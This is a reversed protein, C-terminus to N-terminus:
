LDFGGADASLFGIREYSVHNQEWDLSQDEHVRVFTQDGDNRTSYRVTATEENRMTQMEALLVDQADDLGTDRWKFSAGKTGTTFVDSEPDSQIAIWDIEERVHRGNSAEEEQMRVTFGDADVSHVRTTVTDPGNFTTVQSFVIPAEGDQSPVDDSFDVTVDNDHQASVSGAEIMTGDQLMHTGASVAMWSVSEPALRSGDQYNWEAIQFEFGEETVNRVRAGAPDGHNGSVPGMVVVADDIAEDFAVTFWQDRGTQTVTETGMELRKAPVTLDVTVTATATAGTADSMTYQFTDTLSEPSAGNSTYVLKNDVIEVTGFAPQEVATIVPITVPGDDYTDNALVDIMIQNGVLVGAVDDEAVLPPPGPLTPGDDPKTAERSADFNSAHQKSFYDRESSHVLQIQDLAVYNSRAAIYVTVEGTHGQPIDISNFKGQANDAETQVAWSWTEPDLGGNDFGTEEGRGNAFLKEWHLEGGRSALAGDDWVTENEIGTKDNLIPSGLDWAFYVDNHLDGHNEKPAAWEPKIMRVGVFYRGAPDGEDITFTYSLPTTQHIWERQVYSESGGPNITDKSDSRWLVGEGSYDPIEFSEVVGAAMNPSVYNVPVDNGFETVVSWRDGFKAWSSRSDDLVRYGDEAEMVVVKDVVEHVIYPTPAPALSQGALVFDRADRPNVRADSDPEQTLAWLLMGADSADYSIDYFTLNRNPAVSSADFGDPGNALDMIANAETLVEKEEPDFDYSDLDDLWNWWKSKFGSGPSNSTPTTFGNQDVLEIFAIEPYNTKLDSWKYGQNENWGSHSVLTINELNGDSVGQLANYTATMPGGELVLIKEGSDLVDTLAATATEVQGEYGISAIGLSRAFAASTEMAEAQWPVSDEFINNSYFFTTQEELGAAKIILAAIVLAAIDDPDNNNGDFHFVIQDYEGVSFLANPNLDM